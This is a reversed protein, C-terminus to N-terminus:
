LDSTEGGRSDVLCLHTPHAGAYRQSTYAERCRRPRTSLRTPTGHTQGDGPPPSTKRGHLGNCDAANRWGRAANKDSKRQKAAVTVDTDRSIGRRTEVSERHRLLPTLAMPPAIRQRSSEGLKTLWATTNAGLGASGAQHSRQWIVCCRTIDYWESCVCKSKRGYTTLQGTPLWPIQWTSTIQTYM